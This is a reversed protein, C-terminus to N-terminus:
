GGVRDRLAIASIPVLVFGRAIVDPLWEELVELTADRPHGIAVAFGTHTAIVEVEGLRQRVTETVAENDLFVHRRAHPVGFRRAMRNGVSDQTTRSDLFMLGRAGLERVVTTMGRADGTFKSGMHNSIGVYGDFRGLAWRLRSLIDNPELDGLLANPGPDEDVSEPEMSVHVLLEHGAARAAATQRRLDSGYPLYALTLPGPLALARASRGRDLGMDDIIVAIMPRGDLNAVKVANRRWPLEDDPVPLFTASPLAAVERSSPGAADKDGVAGATRAAPAQEPAPRLPVSNEAAAQEPVSKGGVSRGGLEGGRREPPGHKFVVRPPRFPRAKRSATEDAESKGPGGADAIVPQGGEPPGFLVTMGVGAGVGLCLSLFAIVLPLPVRRSLRESIKQLLGLGFKM